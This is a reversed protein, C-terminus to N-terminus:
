VNIIKQIHALKMLIHGKTPLNYIELDSKRKKETLMELHKVMNDIREEVKQTDSFGNSTQNEKLNMNNVLHCFNTDKAYIGFLFLGYQSIREDLLQDPFPDM